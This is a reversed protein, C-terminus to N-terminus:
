FYPNSTATPLLTSLSLWTESQCIFFSSFTVLYLLFSDRYLIFCTFVQQSAASSTRHQLPSLRPSDHAFGRRTSAPPRLGTKILSYDYHSQFPHGYDQKWLFIIIVNFFPPWLRNKFFFWLSMSFPPWLRNKFFFWLSMSFPPWLGPFAFWTKM